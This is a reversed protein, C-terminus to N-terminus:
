VYEWKYGYATKHKKIKNCCKGISSICFGLQKNIETLSDWQKIFNGQLDYQNVKKNKLLSLKKNRNGYNANYKSTCWELNDVCNNIKNEDKHNVEPLNNPNPIFAQAVLRHIQLEKKIGNKCLVVGYYNGGKICPKLQKIEKKGNYNLSKINGLSSVQYKGEYGEIDKWEEIM